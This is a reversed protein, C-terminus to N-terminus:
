GVPEWRWGNNDECIITEGDGALGTVGHDANSCFEGPEYCNGSSSRPHCAAPPAPPPPPSAVTLSRKGSVSSGFDANGGYTATLSYDGARLRNASLTYSGTGSKLRIVALTARNAKVTVTGGPTGTYRPAVKVSIKESRENGYTVRGTSLSLTTTSSAVAVVLSRAASVSSAVDGSGGYVATISHRGAALRAPGPSCTGKASRLTIVCIVASGAKVTVHGAPVGYAPRVAVSIRERQEAGYSVKAASLGLTTKSSTRAVALNKSASSSRLYRTDGAYSATLKVAGGALTGAALTYAGKGSALAIVRITTGGAKVTVQGTPTGGFAPKVAVSVRERQEAGYTVKVASLSVTTTTPEKAVTLPEAASVSPAFGTATSGAYSATLQATGPPLAAAALACSGDSFSSLSFQCVTTSGSDVTVTGVAIADPTGVTVSIKEAQEDGYTLAAKSLELTTTTPAAAPPPPSTVQFSAAPSSSSEFTDDGSYSATLTVTGVPFEDATPACNGTGDALTITCVTAAGAAITVTGTPTGGAGSVTVTLQEDQEDGTVVSPASVALATASTTEAV